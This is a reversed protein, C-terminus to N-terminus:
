FKFKFFFLIILKLYIMLASLRGPSMSGLIAGEDRKYSQKSYSKLMLVLQEGRM